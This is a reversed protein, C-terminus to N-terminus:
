IDSFKMRILAKVPIPQHEKINDLWNVTETKELENTLFMEKTKIEIQLKMDTPLTQIMEECLLEKFNSHRITANGIWDM